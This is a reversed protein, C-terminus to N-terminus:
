RQSKCQMIISDQSDKVTIQYHNKKETTYYDPMSVAIRIKSPFIQTNIVPKKVTGSVEAATPRDWPIKQIDQKETVQCANLM